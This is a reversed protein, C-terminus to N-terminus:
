LFAVKVLTVFYLFLLMTGTDSRGYSDIANGGSFDTSLFLFKAIYTTLFTGIFNCLVFCERLKSSM